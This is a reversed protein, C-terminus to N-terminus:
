ICELGSSGRQHLREQIFAFVKSYLRAVLRLCHLHQRRFLGCVFHCDPVLGVTVQQLKPCKGRLPLLLSCALSCRHVGMLLLLLVEDGSSALGAECTLLALAPGLSAM